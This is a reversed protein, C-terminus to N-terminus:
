IKWKKGVERNKKILFVPSLVEELEKKHEKHIHEMLLLYNDLTNDGLPRWGCVKCKM